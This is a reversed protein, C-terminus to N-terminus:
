PAEFRPRVWRAYRLWFAVRVGLRGTREQIRMEHLLCQRWLAQAQQVTRHVVPTEESRALAEQHASWLVAPDDGEVLAVLRGPASRDQEPRLRFRAAYPALALPHDPMRDWARQTEVLRGDVLLSRLRVSPQGYFWDVGLFASADPAALVTEPIRASRRLEAQVDPAYGGVLDEVEADTLDALLGGVRRFGLAEFGAVVEPYYAPPGDVPVPTTGLVLDSASAM